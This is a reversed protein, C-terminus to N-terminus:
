GNLVKRVGQAFLEAGADYTFLYRVKGTGDLLYVFGTHDMLYGGSSVTSGRAYRAQYQTAIERIEADTGTLGIAGANFNALYAKLRPATDRAPDVTIFIPQVRKADKGLLKKMRGMETMTAPCVDPCYTYGFFILVAKGRFATLSTPKGAQNTLTFDGGIAYHGVEYDELKLSDARGPAAGVLVVLVAFGIAVALPWRPTRRLSQSCMSVKCTPVHALM